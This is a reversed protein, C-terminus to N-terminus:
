VVSKRDPTMAELARAIAAPTDSGVPVTLTTYLIQDDPIVLVTDLQSPMAGAKDRLAALRATMEHGAFPAQGLPRWGHGDRHELMVAESTFSMAFEPPAIHRNM